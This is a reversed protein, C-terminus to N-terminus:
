HNSFFISQPMFVREERSFKKSPMAKGRSIGAIDGIVCEVEEVRRGDLWEAVTEPMKAVYSMSKHLSM